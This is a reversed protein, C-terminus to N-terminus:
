KAILNDPIALGVEKYYRMAGPHLPMPLGALAKDTSMVSTAKHIANLFPLNEYITKTIQYVADEDVDARVALFNPQAITIVDKELGPYSGATILYPTWLGLGGDAKKAQEETFGLLTVKNGMSALARTVASAPVGAPIGFGAIQGNQLADASPGYGVHILEFDKDADLGINKLLVTNSGITGSNKKGLSLREGKLEAMDDITGTKVKDSLIAFHEVNQWLMSVSRLEKQPGDQALPGKGNWAYYGYLGQLLAFQVEDERLLKINEGSGASNIASMSIKMKPQLKVKTLTSIAVGVPYYTGGTSATALLYNKEDAANVNGTCFFGVTLAAVAMHKLYSTLKM